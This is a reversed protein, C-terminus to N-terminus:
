AIAIHGRERNGEVFVGDGLRLGNIATIVVVNLVGREVLGDGDREAGRTISRDTAILRADHADTAVIYYSGVVRILYDFVDQRALGGVTEEFEIGRLFLGDYQIADANGIGISRGDVILAFLAGKDNQVVTGLVIQGIAGAICISGVVFIHLATQEAFTM